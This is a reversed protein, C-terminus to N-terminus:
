SKECAKKFRASSDQAIAVSAREQSRNSLHKEMEMARRKETISAWAPVSYHARNSDCMPRGFQIVDHDHHTICSMTGASMSISTGAQAVGEM